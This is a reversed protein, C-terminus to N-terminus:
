TTTWEAAINGPFGANNTTTTEKHPGFVLAGRRNLVWVTYKTNTPTLQDNTWLFASSAINGNTDLTFRIMNKSIQQGTNSVTADATLQMLVTGNSLPNNQADVFPGGPTANSSDYIFIGNSGLNAALDLTFTAQQVDTGSLYASGMISGNYFGTGSWTDITWGASATVAHAFSGTGVTEIYFTTGSSPGSLIPGNLTLNAFGATCSPTTYALGTGSIEYVVILFVVTGGGSPAITITNCVKTTQLLYISPANGVGTCFQILSFTEGQDTTFTELRPFAAACTLVLWNGIASPASLSFTTSGTGSGTPASYVTKRVLTAM